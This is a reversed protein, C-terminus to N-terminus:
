VCVADVCCMGSTRRHCARWAVRSLLVGKVSADRAAMSLANRVLETGGARQGRQCRPWVHRSASRRAVIRRLRACVRPRLGHARRKAHGLSCASCTARARRARQAPPLARAVRPRECRRGRRDRARAHGRAGRKSRCGAGECLPRARAAARTRAICRRAGAARPRSAVARGASGFAVHCVLKTALAIAAFCADPGGAPPATRARAACENVTRHAM